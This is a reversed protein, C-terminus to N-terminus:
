ATRFWEGCPLSEPEVVMTDNKVNGRPSARKYPNKQPLEQLSSPTVDYHMSTVHSHCAFLPNTSQAWSRQTISSMNSGEVRSKEPYFLM